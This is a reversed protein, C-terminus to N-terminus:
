VSMARQEPTRIVRGALAGLLACAVFNVHASGLPGHLTGISGAGIAIGLLLLSEGFVFGLAIPMALGRRSSRAPWASPDALWMAATAACWPALHLEFSERGFLMHTRMLAFQIMSGVLVATVFRAGLRNAALVGLCILLMTYLDPRQNSGSAVIVAITLANLLAFVLAAVLNRRAAVALTTNSARPVSNGMRWAMPVGGLVWRLQESGSELSRMEARMATIWSQHAAGVRSAIWRMLREAAWRGMRDLLESM